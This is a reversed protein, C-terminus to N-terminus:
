SGSPSVPTASSLKGERSGPGPDIEAYDELTERLIDRIAGREEAGLHAFRAPPTAGALIEKLRALVSTKLEPPLAAFAESHIMYSCRYTFM